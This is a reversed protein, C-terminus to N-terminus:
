RRPIDFLFLLRLLLFLLLMNNDNRRHRKFLGFLWYYYTPLVFIIIIVDFYKCRVLTYRIGNTNATNFKEFSRRREECEKIVCFRRIPVVFFYIYIFIYIPPFIFPGGLYRLEARLSVLARANEKWVRTFGFFGM